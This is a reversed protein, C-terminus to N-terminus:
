FVQLSESKPKVQNWRFALTMLMPITVNREISWFLVNSYAESISPKKLDHTRIRNDTYGYRAKLREAEAEIEKAKTELNSRLVDM